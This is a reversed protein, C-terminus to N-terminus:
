PWAPWSAIDVPWLWDELWWSGPSSKAGTASFLGCSSGDAPRGGIQSITIKTCNTVPNTTAYPKGTYQDPLHSDLAAGSATAALSACRRAIAAHASPADAIVEICISRRAARPVRISIRLTRSRGAHLENLHRSRLSGNTRVTIRLDWLSSVVRVARRSRRNTVIVLVTASRGAELTRPIRMRVALGPRRVTRRPPIPTIGVFDGRRDSRCRWGERLPVTQTTRGDRIRLRTEVDLVRGNLIDAGLVDGCLGRVYRTLVGNILLDFRVRGRSDLRRLRLRVLPGGRRNSMFLGGRVYRLPLVLRRRAVAAERGLDHSYLTRDVVVRLRRLSVAQSVHVDGTFHLTGLLDRRRVPKSAQRALTAHAGTAVASTAGTFSAGPDYSMIPSGSTTTFNWGGVNAGIGDQPPLGLSCGFTWVTNANGPQYDCTPAVTGWIVSALSAPITGPYSQYQCDNAPCPNDVIPPGLWTANAGGGIVGPGSPVPNCTRYDPSFPDTVSTCGTVVYRQYMTPLLAQYAWLSFAEDAASQLGIADLNWTGRARLQGVLTLLGLDQRVTQSHEDITKDTQQAITPLQNQLGTYTTQYTAMADPSGSPILSMVDGAASLAASAEGGGVGGAIAGAVEVIQTFLAGLDFSATNGAAAALQLQNDIAPLQQGTAIFIRQRMQDVQTFFAVVQQASFIESLVDNIVATWDAATFGSSGAPPTCSAFSPPNGPNQGSCGALSLVGQQLLSLDSPAPANEQDWVDRVSAAGLPIVGHTKAQTSLAAFAAQEGATPFDPYGNPADPLYREWGGTARRNYFWTRIGSPGRAIVADRGDGTIDGARITSYYSPDSGWPDDALNISGPLQSWSNSAPDYKYAVLGQPGRALVEQRGDGDIDAYTISRWYKAQNFGNADSLATLTGLKTWVGGHLEYAELGDVGRGLVQLNLDGTINAFRITKWYAASSGWQTTNQIGEFPGSGDPAFLGSGLGSIGQPPSGDLNFQWSTGEASLSAGGWGGGPSPPNGPQLNWLEDSVFPPGTPQLTGLFWPDNEGAFGPASPLPTWGTGNWEYAELGAFPSVGVLDAKGDGTLDATHISAAASLFFFAQADSFPGGVDIRKWTGGDINDTGAPPFYKYVHIGDPFRGLVEAGQQGDIDATQITSYYQPDKWNPQGLESPLPSRFDSLVQRVGNADVQPRWQGVSTDFWYIEIGDDNRALLEDKGDGTLDALQITSYKSPDTWGAADGWGPLVFTPGCPGTYSPNAAPCADGLAVQVHLLLLWGGLVIVAIALLRLAGRTLIGYREVRWCPTCTLRSSM